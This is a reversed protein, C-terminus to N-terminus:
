CAVAPYALRRRVRHINARPRDRPDADSGRCSTGVAHAHVTDGTAAPRPADLLQVGWVAVALTTTAAAIPTQTSLTTRNM